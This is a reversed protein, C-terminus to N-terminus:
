NRQKWRYLFVQYALVQASIESNKIEGRGTWDQGEYRQLHELEGEFESVDFGEQDSRDELRKLTIEYSEDFVEEEINM